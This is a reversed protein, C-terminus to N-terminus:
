LAVNDWHDLTTESNGMLREFAAEVSMRDWMSMRRVKTPKPMWGRKVWEDFESPSISLLAAAGERRLGRPMLM